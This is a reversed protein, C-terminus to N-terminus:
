KGEATTAAESPYQPSKACEQLDLIFAQSKVPLGTTLFRGQLAPSM